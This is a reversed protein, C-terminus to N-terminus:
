IFALDPHEDVTDALDRVTTESSSFWQKFALYSEIVREEGDPFRLVFFPARQVGHRGALSAGPSDPDDDRALLVADVRPMLGDKRLREEVERCKRCPEGDALVKKVFLVTLGSESVTM